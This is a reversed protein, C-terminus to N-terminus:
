KGGPDAWWIYGAVQLVEWIRNGPLPSVFPVWDDSLSLSESDLRSRETVPKGKRYSSHLQGWKLSPFFFCVFLWRVWNLIIFQFDYIWCAASSKVKSSKGNGNTGRMLLPYCSGRYYASPGVASCMGEREKWFILM